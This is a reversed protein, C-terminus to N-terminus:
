EGEAIRWMKRAEQLREEAERTRNAHHRVLGGCDDCRTQEKPYVRQCRGCFSKNKYTFGMLWHYEAKSISFRNLYFWEM